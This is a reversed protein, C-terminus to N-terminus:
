FDAVVPVAVRNLIHPEREILSVEIGRQRLSAAVELGIFGGGLILIHKSPNIIQHICM